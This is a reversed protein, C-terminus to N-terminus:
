VWYQNRRLLPNTHQQRQLTPQLISSYNVENAVDCSSSWEDPEDGYPSYCPLQHLQQSASVNNLDIMEDSESDDVNSIPIVKCHPISSLVPLSTTVSDEGDSPSYMRNNNITMFDPPRPLPPPYDKDLDNNKAKANSRCKLLIVLVLVLVFLATLIAVLFWINVRWATEYVLDVNENQDSSEMLQSKLKHIEISVFAQGRQFVQGPQNVILEYEFYDNVSPVNEPLKRAVFYIVGSNLDNYNFSTIDKDNSHESEGTNRIIKKIRGHEPKRTINIKPKYKILKVQYPNDDLFSTTLRIKDESAISIGNLKILPEVIIKVEINESLGQSTDPVYVSVQLFNFRM